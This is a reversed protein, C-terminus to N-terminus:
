SVQFRISYNMCGRVFIPWRVNRAGSISRHVVSSVLECRDQLPFEPPNPETEVHGLWTFRLSGSRKGTARKLLLMIGDRAPSTANSPDQKLEQILM